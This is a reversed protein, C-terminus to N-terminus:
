GALAAGTTRTQQWRRFTREIQAIHLHVHNEYMELWDELTIRGRENHMAYQAWAEDPQLAILRWNLERLVRFADQALLASQPDDPQLRAWGDEDYGMIMGGPEALIRRLRIYGNAESDALHVLIQRVNWHDESPQFDWMEPPTLQLAEQLHEFGRAFSQLLAERHDLSLRLM